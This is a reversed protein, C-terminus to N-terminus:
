TERRGGDYPVAIGAAVLQENLSIGAADEVSALLRGYKERRDKVTRVVLGGRRVAVWDRVWGAADVGEATKLEPTNVGALRLKAELELGYGLTLRANLSDGDVVVLGDAPYAYSPEVVDVLTGHPQNGPWPGPTLQVHVVDGRERAWERVAAIGRRDPAALKLTTTAHLGFGYDLTGTVGARHVRTVHLRFVGPPPAAQATGGTVSNM